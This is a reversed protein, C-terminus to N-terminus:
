EPGLKADALYKYKDGSVNEKPDGDGSGIIEWFPDDPAMPGKLYKIYKRGSPPVWDFEHSPNTPEPLGEIESKDIRINRGVRVAHLRGRTIYRRITVPAVRLVRAAENVTMLEM